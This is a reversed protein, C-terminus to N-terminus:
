NISPTGEPQKVVLAKGMINSEPSFPVKFKLVFEISGNVPVPGDPTHLMSAPEVSMVYFMAAAEELKMHLMEGAKIPNGIKDVPWVKDTPM